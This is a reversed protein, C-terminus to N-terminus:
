NVGTNIGSIISAVELNINKGLASKVTDSDFSDNGPYLGSPSYLFLGGNLITSGNDKDTFVGNFGFPNINTDAENYHIAPNIVTTQDTNTPDITGNLDNLIHQGSLLPNLFADHGDDYLVSLSIYNNNIYYNHLKGATAKTSDDFKSRLGLISNATQQNIFYEEGQYTGAIGKINFNALVPTSGEQDNVIRNISNTVEFTINQGVSLGYKHAAFANVIIPQYGTSSAAECQDDSIYQSLNKGAQDTLNLYKSGDKIGVVRASDSKIKNGVKISKTTLYTYTEDTKKLPVKNYALQYDSDIPTTTNADNFVTFNQYVTNLFSMFAPALCVGSNPM